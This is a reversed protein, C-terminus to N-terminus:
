RIARKKCGYLKMKKGNKAVKQFAYTCCIKLSAFHFEYNLM